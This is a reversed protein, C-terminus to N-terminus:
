RITQGDVVYKVSGSVAYIRKEPDTEQPNVLTSSQEVVTGDSNESLYRFTGDENIIRELRVNTIEKPNQQPRAVALGFLALLM